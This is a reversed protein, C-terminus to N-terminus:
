WDYNTIESNNVIYLYSNDLNGDQTYLENKLKPYKSILMRIIDFLSQHLEISISIEREGIIERIMAFSRITIKIITM